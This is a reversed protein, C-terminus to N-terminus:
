KLTRSDRTLEAGEIVIEDRDGWGISSMAIMADLLGMSEPLIDTLRFVQGNRADIAMNSIELEDIRVDTKIKKIRLAELRERVITPFEDGSLGGAMHAEIREMADSSVGHKEMVMLTNIIDQNPGIWEPQILPFSIHVLGAVKTKPDYLAVAVCDGFGITKLIPNPSRASTVGFTKMRVNIM